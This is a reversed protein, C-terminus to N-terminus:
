SEGEKDPQPLADPLECRECGGGIAPVRNPGCRCVREGQSRPQAPVPDAWKPWVDVLETGPPPWWPGHRERINLDCRDEDHIQTLQCRCRACREGGEAERPPREVTLALHFTLSDADAGWGELIAAYERRARDVAEDFAGTDGRNARCLQSIISHHATSGPIEAM